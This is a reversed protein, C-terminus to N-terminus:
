VAEDSRTGEAHRDALHGGVHASPDLRHAVPERVAETGEAQRCLELDARAFGFFLHVGVEGPEAPHAVIQVFGHFLGAAVFVGGGQETATAVQGVEVAVVPLSAVDGLARREVRGDLASRGVDDLDGHDIDLPRKSFLVQRRPHQELNV